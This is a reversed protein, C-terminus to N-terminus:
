LACAAMQSEAYAHKLVNRSSICYITMSFFKTKMSEKATLSATMQPLAAVLEFGSNQNQIYAAPLLQKSTARRSVNCKDLAVHGCILWDRIPM